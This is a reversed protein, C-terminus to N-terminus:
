KYCYTGYNIIVLRLHEELIIRFIDCFYLIHLRTVRFLLYLIDGFFNRIM